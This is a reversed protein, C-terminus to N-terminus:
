VTGNKGAILNGRSAKVRDSEAQQLINWSRSSAAAHLNGRVLRVAAVLELNTDVVVPRVILFRREVIIEIVVVRQVRKGLKLCGAGGRTIEGSVVCGTRLLQVDRM